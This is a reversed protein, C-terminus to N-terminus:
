FSQNEKTEEAQHGRLYDYMAMSGIAFIAAAGFSVSSVLWTQHFLLANIWENANAASAGLLFVLDHLIFDAINNRLSDYHPNTCEFSNVYNERLPRLFM